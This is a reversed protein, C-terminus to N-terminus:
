AIDPWTDSLVYGEPWPDDPDLMETRMGTIWARGSIEPLIAPLGSCTRKDKEVGVEIVTPSGRPALRGSQQPPPRLLM